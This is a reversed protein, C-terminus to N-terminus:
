VEKVIALIKRNENGFFFLYSDRNYRLDFALPVRLAFVQKLYCAEM